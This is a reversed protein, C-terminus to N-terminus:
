LADSINRCVTHTYTHREKPRQYKIIFCLLKFAWHYGHLRYSVCVIVLQKSPTWVVTVKAVYCKEFILIVMEKLDISHILVSAQSIIIHRHRTECTSELHSKGNHLLFRTKMYFISLVIIVLSVVIRYFVSLYYKRHLKALM